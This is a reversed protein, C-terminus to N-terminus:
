RTLKFASKDFRARYIFLIFFPIFIEHWRRSSGLGFCYLGDCLGHATQVKQIQGDTPDKRRVWVAGVHFGDDVFASFEGVTDHKVDCRTV